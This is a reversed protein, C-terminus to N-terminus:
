LAGTRIKFDTSTHFILLSYSSNWHSLFCNWGELGLAISSRACLSDLTARSVFIGCCALELSVYGGDMAARTFPEWPGQQGKRDIPHSFSGESLQGRRKRWELWALCLPEKQREIEKGIKEGYTNDRLTKARWDWRLTFCLCSTVGHSTSRHYHNSSSKGFNSLVTRNPLIFTWCYSYTYYAGVQIQFIGSETNSLFSPSFVHWSSFMLLPSPILSCFGLPDSCIKFPNSVESGGEAQPSQNQRTWLLVPSLLHAESCVM